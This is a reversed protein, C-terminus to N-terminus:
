PFLQERMFHHTDGYWDLGWWESDDTKGAIAMCMLKLVNTRKHNYHVLSCDPNQVITHFITVTPDDDFKKVFARIKAHEEEALVKKVKGNVMVINPPPDPPHKDYWLDWRLQQAEEFSMHEELNYGCPDKHTWDGPKIDGPHKM